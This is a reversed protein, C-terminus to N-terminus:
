VVLKWFEPTECCGKALMAKASPTVPELPRLGNTFIVSHVMDVSTVTVCLPDWPWKYQIEVYGNLTAWPSIGNANLGDNVSVTATGSPELTVDALTVKEGNSLYLIPTVTVAAIEVSNKIYITSKFNPDIMWLGGVMSRLPGTKPPNDPLRPAIPRHPALVKSQQGFLPSTCALIAVLAALCRRM